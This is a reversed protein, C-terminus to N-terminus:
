DAGAQQVLEHRAPAECLRISRLARYPRDHGSSAPFFKVVNRPERMDDKRRDM